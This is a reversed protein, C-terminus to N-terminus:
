DSAVVESGAIRSLQWAVAGDHCGVELIRGGLPAATVAAVLRQAEAVNREAAKARAALEASTPLRTAAEADFMTRWRRKLRDRLGPDLVHRTGHRDTFTTGAPFPAPDGAAASAGHGGRRRTALDAEIAARLRDVDLVRHVGARATRKWLSPSAPSSKPPRDAVHTVLSMSRTWPASSVIDAPGAFIMRVM